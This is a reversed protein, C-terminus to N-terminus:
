SMRYLYVRTALKATATISWSLPTMVKSSSQSYLMQSCVLLLKTSFPLRDHRM